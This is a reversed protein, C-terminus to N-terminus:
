YSGLLIVRTDLCGFGWEGRAYLIMKDEAHAAPDSFVVPEMKVPMVLRNDHQLDLGVVLEVDSTQLVGGLETQYYQQYEQGEGLEVLDHLFVGFIRTLVNSGDTAVYIERRSVEDLQDISWNRVDELGESSLFLDTLKSRNVSSTNGGGNRSMTARMISILRKTFEGAAADADYVLIDRDLGAALLTKWGDDNIKKVFGDMLYKEMNQVENTRSERLYRLSTGVSNGVVFTPLIVYDSQILKHPMRGHMPITYATFDNEEGPALSSLNFEPSQGPQMPIVTYVNSTIDGSMIGERIPLEIAKALNDQAECMAARSINNGQGDSGGANNILRVAEPDPRKFVPM